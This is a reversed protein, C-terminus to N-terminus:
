PSLSNNGTCPRRNAVMDDEDHKGSLVDCRITYGYKYSSHDGSERGSLPPPSPRETPLCKAFTFIRRCTSKSPDGGYAGIALNITIYMPVDSVDDYPQGTTGKYDGDIYWALEGPEWVITYTHWQTRDLSGTSFNVSSSRHRGYEDKYHNTEIVEGSDAGSLEEVDIEPPWDDDWALLYCAPWAGNTVPLKAEFEFIGYLQQFKGITSIQGSQYPYGNATKQDGQIQLMNNAVSVQSPSFWEQEDAGVNHKGTSIGWRSVDLKDGAFGEQFTPIWATLSLGKFYATAKTHSIEPAIMVAVTGPPADFMQNVDVWGPTTYPWSQTNPVVMRNGSSDIWFLAVGVYPNDPSGELPTASDQTVVRISGRLLIRSWEPRLRVTQRIGAVTTRDLTNESVFTDAGEVVTSTQLAANIQTWDAMSPKGNQSFGANQIYNLPIDSATDAHAVAFILVTPPISLLLIVASKKLFSRV